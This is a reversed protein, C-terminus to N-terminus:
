EDGPEPDNRDSWALTRCPASLVCFGAYLLLLVGIAFVLCSGATSGVAVRQLSRDLGRVDSPDSQVAAWLLFIAVAAVVLARGIWGVAGGWELLMRRRDSVASLDLQRVFRRTAGKYAFYTAIALVVIAAGAVLMRGAASSLLEASYREISSGEDQRTGTIAGDFAAWAVTVYTAASVTYALRHAWGDLDGSDILLVSLVRFAIYLLLGAAVAFLLIRTSPRQTMLAVIGTYDADARGPRNTAIVIAAWGIVSYVIGKAAWGAKTLPLIWPQSRLWDAIAKALPETVPERALVRELPEVLTELTSNDRQLEVM